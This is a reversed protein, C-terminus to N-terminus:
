RGVVALSFLVGTGFFACTALLSGPQLRAVGCLGHGSTCGTAMRTGAGVLVGGGTMVLATAAPSGGFVRAFGPSVEFLTPAFTGAALSSLLGGLVLGVLFLWHSSLADPRGPAVGRARDVIASFRSSVSMLQGTWLAHALAVGALALGGLWFPWYTM